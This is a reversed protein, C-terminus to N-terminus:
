RNLTLLLFVIIFHSIHKFSVIFVGSRRCQPREPTKITLKSCIEDKTRTNRKNVKFLCIGAPYISGFNLPLPMKLLQIELLPTEVLSGCALCELEFVQSIILGLVSSTNFIYIM